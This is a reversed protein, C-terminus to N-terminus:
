SSQDDKSVSPAEYRGLIENDSFAHIDEPVVVTDMSFSSVGPQVSLAQDFAELPDPWTFKVTTPDEGNLIRAFGILNEVSLALIHLRAALLVPDWNRHMRHLRYHRGEEGLRVRQFASSGFESGGLSVMAETAAPVGASAQRGVALRFGGPKVRLGHKLNNYEEQAGDELFDEAFVPWAREFGMRVAAEKEKDELSVHALCADSYSRWSRVAPRLACLYEDGHAIARVVEELDSQRYLQMWGVVCRPAQIIACAIAFFTELAQGYATRLAVAAMQAQDSELDPGYKSALYSFYDPQLNALFELGRERLDWEWVCYARRGVAFAEYEIGNSLRNPRPEAM